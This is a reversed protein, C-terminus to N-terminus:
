ASPNSVLQYHHIQKDATRGSVWFSDRTAAFVRQRNRLYARLVVWLGRLGFMLM